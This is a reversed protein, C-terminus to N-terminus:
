VHPIRFGNARHLDIAANINDRAVQYTIANAALNRKQDDMLISLANQEDAALRKFEPHRKVNNIDAKLRIIDKKAQQLPGLVGVERHAIYGRIAMLMGLFGILIGFVPVFFALIVGVLVAGISGWYWAGTVSLLLRDAVGIILLTGFGYVTLIGASAYLWMAFRGLIGTPLLFIIILLTFIWGKWYAFAQLNMTNVIIEQILISHIVLAFTAIPILMFFIFMEWYETIETPIGFVALFDRFKTPTQHSKYWDLDLLKELDLFFRPQASAFDSSFILVCILFILFLTEIKMSKM